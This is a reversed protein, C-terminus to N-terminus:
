QSPVKGSCCYCLCQPSQPKHIGTGYNHQKLGKRARRGVYVTKCYWLCTLLANAERHLPYEHIGMNWNRMAITHTSKNNPKVHLSHSRSTTHYMADLQRTYQCAPLKQAATMSLCGATTVYEHMCQQTLPVRYPLPM